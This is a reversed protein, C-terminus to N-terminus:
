RFSFGVSGNRIGSRFYLFEIHNVVYMFKLTNLYCLFSVEFAIDIIQSDELGTPVSRINYSKAPFIFDFIAAEL